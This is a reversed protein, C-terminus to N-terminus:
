ALRYVGVPQEIGKLAVEGLSRASPAAGKQARVASESALFQSDYEKNLQEIRAAIIVNKGTLSYFRRSENGVNGAIVRGSNLGIGVRIPPIQGAEGLARVREVMEYGARIASRAHERMAVPAGFVAMIGDGLIQLVIGQNARVIEILEGFVINQFRAVEEPERSDAFLTFDRIDLFMVTADYTRSDIETPSEILTRAVEESVQQGFLAQIKELMRATKDQEVVLAEHQKTLQVNKQETIAKEAKLQSEAEYASRAFYHILLALVALPIVLNTATRYTLVEEPLAYVGNQTFLYLGVLAASVLTFMAYRAFASWHHNFFCLGALYFLWYQLGFGWGVYYTGLVQHMFLEVFALSFALNLHGRRNLLLAAFFFPVSVIVNFWLMEQVRMDWFAGVALMHGVLGVLYAVQTIRFFKLDEDLVRSTPQMLAALGSARMLMWIPELLKPMAGGASIAVVCLIASGGDAYVPATLNSRQRSLDELSRSQNLSHGCIAPLLCGNAVSRSLTARQAHLTAPGSIM